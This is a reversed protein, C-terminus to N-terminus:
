TKHDDKQADDTPKSQKIETKAPAAEYSRVYDLRAYSYFTTAFLALGYVVATLVFWKMERDADNFKRIWQLMLTGNTKKGFVCAYVM